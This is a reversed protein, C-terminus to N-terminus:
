TPRGTPPTLVLPPPLLQIHLLSKLRERFFPNAASLVLFPLLLAFHAAAVCVVPILFEMVGTRGGAALAVLFFPATAALWLVLLSLFVWLCLALLRFRHRCLWGAVSLAVASVFVALGLLMAFPVWDFHELDAGQQSLFVLVSFGALALLVCLWTVVRYTQRLYDSVLWVASVGFVLAGVVDLVMETGLPLVTPLLTLALGCGLPLWILWASINRNPKLALLGLILLWPQLKPAISPLVWNYEVPTGQKAGLAGLDASAIVSLNGVASSPM